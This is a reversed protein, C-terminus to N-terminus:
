GYPQGGQLSKNINNLKKKFTNYKSLIDRKGATKVPFQFYWHVGLKNAFLLM